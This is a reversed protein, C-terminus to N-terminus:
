THSSNLRTSKRDVLDAMFMTAGKLVAVVHINEPYDTRIAHALEAVRAAIQASSFLVASPKRDVMPLLM